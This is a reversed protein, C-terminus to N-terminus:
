SMQLFRIRRQHFPLWRSENEFNAIPLLPWAPLIAQNEFVLGSAVPMRQPERPPRFWFRSTVSPYKGLSRLLHLEYECPESLICSEAHECKLANGPISCSRCERHPGIKIENPSIANAYLFQRQQAPSKQFLTFHRLTIAAPLLVGHGKRFLAHAQV